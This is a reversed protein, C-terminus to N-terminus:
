VYVMPCPFTFYGFIIKLNNNNDKIAEVIITMLRIIKQKFTYAM